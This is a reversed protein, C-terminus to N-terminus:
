PAGAAPAGVWLLARDPSRRRRLAPAGAPARGRVLAGARPPRPSGWWLRRGDRYVRGAAAAPSRAPAPLPSATGARQVLDVGPAHIGHAAPAQGNPASESREIADSPGGTHPPTAH